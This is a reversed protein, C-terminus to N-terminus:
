LQGSPILEFNVDLTVQQDQDHSEEPPNGDGGGRMIGDREEGRTFYGLLQGM